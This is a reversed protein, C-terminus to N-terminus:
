LNLKLFLLLKIPIFIICNLQQGHVAQPFSVRYHWDSCPNELLIKYDTDLKEETLVCHRKLPRREILIGHTQIKKV